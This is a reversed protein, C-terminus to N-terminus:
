IRALQLPHEDGLSKSAADIPLRTALGCYLNVPFRDHRASGSVHKALQRIALPQTNTLEAISAASDTSCEGSKCQM